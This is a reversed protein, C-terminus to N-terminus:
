GILIPKRRWVIWYGYSIRWLCIRREQPKGAIAEVIGAISIADCPANGFSNACRIHRSKNSELYHAIELALKRRISLPTVKM